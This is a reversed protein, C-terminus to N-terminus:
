NSCGDTTPTVGAGNVFRTDDVDELQYWLISGYDAAVSVEYNGAPMEGKSQGGLTSSM